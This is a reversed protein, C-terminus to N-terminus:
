IVIILYLRGRRSGNGDPAMSLVPVLRAANGDGAGDSLVSRDDDSPESSGSGEAKEFMVARRQRAGPISGGHNALTRHQGTGIQPLGEARAPWVFYIFLGTGGVLDFILVTWDICSQVFIIKM